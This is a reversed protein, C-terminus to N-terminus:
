NSLLPINYGEESDVLYYLYSSHLAIWIGKERKEWKPPNSEYNHILDLATEEKAASGLNEIRNNRIRSLHYM